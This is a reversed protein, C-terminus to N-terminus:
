KRLKSRYLWTFFWVGVLNALAWGLLVAWDRWRDAYYYDLTGGYDDGVGFKCYACDGSADPNLLYGANRSLFERAYAGCSRAGPPIDFATVDDPGCHAEVGHLVSSVTGGLFYRLPDVWFIWPKYFANMSAHPVLTGSFVTLLVWFLSNAYGALTANPFIAAMLQCFGTGFLSLLLYMFYVYGAASSTNPSGATWYTCLFALTYTLIQWPVEVIMLAALLAKYDYIGNRERAEFIAWKAFWVNQIDAATAPIIWIIILLALMRNQFGAVDLGAMFYTFAIFLECVICKTLRSFNYPGNRWVAIWHRHTLEYIQSRLPLAYASGSQVDSGQTGNGGPGHQQELTSITDMLRTHEPSELWTQPWDRGAVNGETVAMIVAEAPNEDPPISAGMRNFYDVVHSSQPGTEGFYVTRGGPALLLIHDFMQFLM